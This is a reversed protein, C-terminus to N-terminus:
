ARVTGTIPPLRQWTHAVNHMLLANDFVVSGVPFLREDAFYSSFIQTVALPSVQWQPTTLQVGSFGHGRSELSYGIAGQQFFASAQELDTFISTAPWNATEHAEVALNTGDSSHLAISYSDNSERVQFQSHHHVGLFRNGFLQNIRSSTDRRPIFVGSRPQGAVDWEVAFRHAGNESSLGMFAPLGNLREYRLRILCIGVMAYGQVLQPRFPAPLLRAVVVPDARFNLLIRRDILGTLPLNPM